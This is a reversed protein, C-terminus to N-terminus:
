GIQYDGTPQALWQGGNAAMPRQGNEDSRLKKGLLQIFGLPKQGILNFKSASFGNPNPAVNTQRQKGDTLNILRLFKFQSFCAVRV